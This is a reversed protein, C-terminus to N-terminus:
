RPADSMILRRLLVVGLLLIFFLLVITSSGPDVRSVLVIDLTTTLTPGCFATLTYRGVPLDPLVLPALFRGQSDAFASGVRHDDVSLTVAAGSDCGEGDATADGGPPSADRDLRVGKGGPITATTTTNGNQDTSPTTDAPVTTTTTTTTTSPRTTTAGPQTTTTTAPQTTTPQTTTTPEPACQGLSNPVCFPASGSYDGINTDACDGAVTHSGPTTGPPVAVTAGSGSNPPSGFIKKGDFTVRYGRQSCIIGDGNWSLNATFATGVPGTSPNVKFSCKNPNGCANAALAEQQATSVFLATVFIAVVIWARRKSRM